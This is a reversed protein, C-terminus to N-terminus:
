EQEDDAGLVKGSAPNVAHTQRCALCTVTTYTDGNSSPDDAVWGQVQLGMMPCIFLFPAM